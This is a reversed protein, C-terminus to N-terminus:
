RVGAEPPPLQLTHSITPVPVKASGHSQLPLPGTVRLSESGTSERGADPCVIGSHSPPPYLARSTRTRGALLHTKTMADSLLNGSLVLLSPFSLHEAPLLGLCPSAEWCIFNPLCLGTESNGEWIDPGLAPTPLQSLPKLRGLRALLRLNLAPKHEVYSGKAYCDCLSRHPM